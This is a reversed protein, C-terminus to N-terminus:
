RTTVFTFYDLLPKQANQTVLTVELYFNCPLQLIWLMCSCFLLRRLMELLRHCQCYYSRANGLRTRQWRYWAISHSLEHHKLCVIHKSALAMIRNYPHPAILTHKIALYEIFDAQLQFCGESFSQVAPRGGFLTADFLAM